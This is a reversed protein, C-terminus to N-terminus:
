IGNAIFTEFYNPSSIDLDRTRLPLFPIMTSFTRPYYIRMTTHLLQIRINNSNYQMELLTTIEYVESTEDIREEGRVRYLVITYIM